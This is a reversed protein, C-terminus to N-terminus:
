KWWSFFGSADLERLRRGPKKCATKFVGIIDSTITVPCKISNLIEAFVKAETAPKHAKIGSPTEPNWYHFDTGPKFMTFGTVSLSAPQLINSLLVIGYTGTTLSLKRRDGCDVQIDPTYSFLVPCDGVWREFEAKVGRRTMPNIVVVVRPPVAEEVRRNPRTEAYPNCVLIDTRHGVDEEFGVVRGDNFRVVIDHSDIWKGHGSGELSPANGVIAVTKGADFTEVLDFPTILNM